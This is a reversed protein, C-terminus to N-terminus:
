HTYATANIAFPVMRQVVGSKLNLFMLETSGGFITKEDTSKNHEHECLKECSCKELKFRNIGLRPFRCLATHIQGNVGSELPQQM